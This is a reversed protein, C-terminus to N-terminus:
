KDDRYQNGGQKKQNGGGKFDKGSGQGPYQPKNPSTPPQQGPSATKSPTYQSSQHSNQVSKSSQNQSHKDM